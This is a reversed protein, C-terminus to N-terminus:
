AEAVSVHIKEGSKSVFDKYFYRKNASLLRWPTSRPEYGKRKAHAIAKRKAIHLGACKLIKAEGIEATPIRGHEWISIKVKM